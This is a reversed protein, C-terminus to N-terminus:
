VLSGLGEEALSVCGAQFLEPLEAVAGEPQVVIGQKLCQFLVVTATGPVAPVPIQHPSVRRRQCLCGLLEAGLDPGMLVPLPLKEPLPTGDPLRRCCPSDGDDAVQRDKHGM